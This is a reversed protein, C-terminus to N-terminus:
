HHFLIVLLRAISSGSHNTIRPQSVSRACHDLQNVYLKILSHEEAVPSSASIGEPVRLSDFLSIENFGGVSLALGM